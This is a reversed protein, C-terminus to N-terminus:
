HSGNRGRRAIRFAGNRRKRDNSANSTRHKGSRSQVMEVAIDRGAQKAAKGIVEILAARFPRCDPTKGDSTLRFMPSTINFTVNYHPGAPVTVNITTGSITIGLQDDWVGGTFPAVARTRNMFLAGTLRDAQEDPCFADAWCEVLFQLEARPAHEGETFTGEAIAYGAAVM